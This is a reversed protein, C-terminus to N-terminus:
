KGCVQYKRSFNCRSVVTMNVRLCNNVTSGVNIQYNNQTIQVCINNGSASSCASQATATATVTTEEQAVPEGNADLPVRIGAAMFGLEMLGDANWDGMYLNAIYTGNFFVRGVKVCSDSARFFYHFVTTQTRGITCAIVNGANVKAEDGMRRLLINEVPGQYEEGIEVTVEIKTLGFVQGDNVLYRMEGKYRLIGDEVIGRVFNKEACKAPRIEVEETESTKGYLMQYEADLAVWAPGSESQSGSEINPLVADAEECAVAVMAPILMLAVMMLAILKKM